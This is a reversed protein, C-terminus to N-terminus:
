KSYARFHEKDKYNPFKHTGVLFLYMLLITIKWGFLTTFTVHGNIGKLISEKVESLRVWQEQGKQLM